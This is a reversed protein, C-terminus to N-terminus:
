LSLLGTLGDAGWLRKRDVGEVNRRNVREGRRRRVGKRRNVERWEGKCREVKKKKKKKKVHLRM